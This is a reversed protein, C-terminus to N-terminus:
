KARQFYGLAAGQHQGAAHRVFARKAVPLVDLSMLGLNRLLSLPKSSSAFIEGVQDSFLTTKQQDFQQAQQYNQLLAIDGLNKGRAFASCLHESLRACDRLALNFGQGAVPHLAHAANGMIVVQSRVQEASRLLQLPYHVREGVQMFRGLRHGFRQQLHDLFEEESCTCLEEARQPDQTWVLASKKQKAQADAGTLPLLAMPGQDTFREYAMHKHPKEFSVNAVIASQQYDNIYQEIGLSNRLQSGAGDAVILLQATINKRRDQEAIAVEVYGQRMTASIISAPCLFNVARQQVANILVQGLWMNEVVYGLAPWQMQAASMTASPLAGKSSVHIQAIATVHQALTSWLNLQEFIVQSGYSLATSRADFSPTYSLPENLKAAFNEVVLVRMEGGSQQHLALALSAGVMGGGAIVVDYDLALAM